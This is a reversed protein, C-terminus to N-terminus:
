SVLHLFLFSSSQKISQLRLMQNKTARIKDALKNPAPHPEEPLEPEFLLLGGGLPAGGVGAPSCTKAPL